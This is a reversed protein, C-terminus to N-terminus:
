FLGVVDAVRRIGVCSQSALIVLVLGIDSQRTASGAAQLMFFFLLGFHSITSHCLHGCCQKRDSTDTKYATAFLSM